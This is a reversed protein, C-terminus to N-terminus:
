LIHIPTRMYTHTHKIYTQRGDLIYTYKNVLETETNNYLIYQYISHFNDSMLPFLFTFLIGRLFLCSYFFKYKRGWIHSYGDAEFSTYVKCVMAISWESLGFLCMPDLLVTDGQYLEAHLGAQMPKIEWSNWILAAHGPSAPAPQPLQYENTRPRLGFSILPM